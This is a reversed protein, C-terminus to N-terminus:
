KPGAHTGSSSWGCSGLELELCAEAGAMAGAKLESENSLELARAISHRPTPTTPPLYSLPPLHYTPPPFIKPCLLPPFFFVHPCLIPNKNMWLIAEVLEDEVPANTAALESWGM